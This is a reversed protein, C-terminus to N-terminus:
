IDLTEDNKGGSYSGNKEHETVFHWAAKAFYGTTDGTFQEAFLLARVAKVLHSDTRRPGELAAFVAIQWAQETSIDVATIRDLKMRPRLQSIYLTITMIWLGQFLDNHYSAPLVQQGCNSLAIETAEHTATLVHLLFFDFTPHDDKHTATLLLTAMHLLRGFMERPDSSIELKSAYYGIREPFKKMVKDPSLEMPESFAGDFTHDVRIEQLIKVPDIEKSVSEEPFKLMSPYDKYETCCLTLAEIALYPSNTEVAYGLHILPHLLGGFLGPFLNCNKDTLFRRVIPQWDGKNENFKDSIYDFFAREMRKDGLYSRWDDDTLTEVPENSWPTLTEAQNDYLATLQEPTAGLCYASVIIHPLHSHFKRNNFLVAYSNHNGKILQDLKRTSEATPKKLNYADPVALGIGDIKTDKLVSQSTGMRASKPLNVTATSIFSVLRSQRSAISKVIINPLHPTSGNVATSPFARRCIYNLDGM